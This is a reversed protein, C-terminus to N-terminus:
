FRRSWLISFILFSGVIGAFIFGAMGLRYIPSGVNILLSSGVIIAAIIIGVTIRSSARDITAALNELHEHHVQVKLKGRRLQRFMFSVDGPIESGSRAMDRLTDWTDKVVYRPIYRREILREVYPQIIPVMNMHPDLTQGVTEITALAKVLLSFRPALEIQHSRLIQTARDIGKAVQGGGVITQAEFAIYEAIEQELAQLNEPESDQTLRLIARVCESSKKNFIALLLDAIIIADKSEIHGAMGFDLFALKNDYTIFINGPHPDAHFLHHEFVMKCLVDCGIEAIKTTDCRREAYHEVKDVRIGDVWDMLMVQHTSLELFVRPVIVRDDEEFNRRFQDIVRAEITFDLERRISRSFEDVIGIPDFWHAEESHDTLWGAIQEMLSLDSEIIKVIGPRQIKLAVAEGTKLVGRYVQSISASAIPKEDLQSFIRHYDGGLAEELVPCISEFPLVDVKDQLLSLEQAITHSVLDPRTSLIQGFKIFTPGLEVLATRLREGFTEPAGPRAKLLRLRRLMQAPLGKQFGARRLLDAFGHRIMVQLVEAFRVANVTRRGLRTYHM